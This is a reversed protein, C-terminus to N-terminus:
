VYPKVKLYDQTSGPIPSSSGQPDRGVQSRKHSQSECVATLTKLTVLLTSFPLLTLIKLFLITFIDLLRLGLVTAYACFDVSSYCNNPAGKHGTVNLILVTKVKRPHLTVITGLFDCLKGRHIMSNSLNSLVESIM